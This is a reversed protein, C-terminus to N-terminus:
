NDQYVLRVRATHPVTRDHLPPLFAHRDATVRLEESRSGVIISARTVARDSWEFIPLASSKCMGGLASALARMWLPLDPKEMAWGVACQLRLDGLLRDSPSTGSSLVIPTIVVAEGGRNAVLKWNKDTLAPLAFRRDGDIPIPVTLGRSHFTLKLGELGRAKPGPKVAFFLKSQPALVRRGEEYARLARALKGADLTSSKSGTVVIEQAEPELHARAAGTSMSGSSALFVLTLTIRTIPVPTKGGRKIVETRLESGGTACNFAPKAKGGELASLHRQSGSSGIASLWWSRIAISTSM